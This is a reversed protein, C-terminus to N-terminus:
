VKMFLKGVTGNLKQKMHCVSILSYMNMLWVILGTDIIENGIWDGFGWNLNLNVLNVSCLPGSWEANASQTKMPNGYGLAVYFFFVCFRLQLGCSHCALELLIMGRCQMIGLYYTDPMGKFQWGNCKKEPCGRSEFVGTSTTRTFSGSDFITGIGRKM